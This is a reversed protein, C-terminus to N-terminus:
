LETGVQGFTAELSYTIYLFGDNDRHEKYIASLSENAPPVVGNVFIFLAEGRSLKIRERLVKYIFQGVTFDNPVIFKNKGSIPADTKNANDCIIPVKDPYKEKLHDAMAKREDFTKKDKFTSPM